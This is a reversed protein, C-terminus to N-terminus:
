DLEVYPRLVAARIWEEEVVKGRNNLRMKGEMIEGFLCERKRTCITKSSIIERKATIM